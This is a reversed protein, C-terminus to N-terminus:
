ELPSGRGLLGKGVGSGKDLPEDELAGDEELHTYDLYRYQCLMIWEITAKIISVVKLGELASKVLTLYNRIVKISM